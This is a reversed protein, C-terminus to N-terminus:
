KAAVPGQFVVSHSIAETALLQHPDVNSARVLVVDGADGRDTMVGGLIILLRITLILMNYILDTDWRPVSNKRIERESQNSM